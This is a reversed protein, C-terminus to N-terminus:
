TRALDFTKVSRAGDPLVEFGPYGNRAANALYSLFVDSAAESAVVVHLIFRIGPMEEEGAYVKGVWRDPATRVPAPDPQYEGTTHQVVFWVKGDPLGTADVEVIGGWGLSSNGPRLLRVNSDGGGGGEGGGFLAAGVLFAVVVALAGLAPLLWRQRRAAASETHPRIASVLRGVDFDWRSDSIELANQQSLEALPAPLATPGPM